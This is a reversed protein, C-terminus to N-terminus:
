FVQDVLLFLVVLVSILASVWFLQIGPRDRDAWPANDWWSM